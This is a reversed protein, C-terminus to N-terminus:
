LPPLQPLLWHAKAFSPCPGNVTRSTSDNDPRDGDVNKVTLRAAGTDTVMLWNRAISNMRVLPAPVAIKICTPVPEDGAIRSAQKPNAVVLGVIPLVKLVPELLQVLFVSSI